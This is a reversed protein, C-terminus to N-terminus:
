KGQSKGQKLLIRLPIDGIKVGVGSAEDWVQVLFGLPVEEDVRLELKAAPSRDRFARLAAGLDDLLVEQEGLVIREDVTVSLSVRETVDSAQALESSQPLSLNVLAERKKFTTTFIFFILLIALIDILSVIPVVPNSRRSTVFKM